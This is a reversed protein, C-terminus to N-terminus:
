ETEEEDTQPSRHKAMGEMMAKVQETIADAGKTTAQKARGKASEKYDSLWFNLMPAMKSFGEANTDLDRIYELAEQEKLATVAQRHCHVLLQWKQLHDENGPTNLIFFARSILKQHSTTAAHFYKCFETVNGGAGALIEVIEAPTLQDIIQPPVNKPRGMIGSPVVPLVIEGILKEEKAM